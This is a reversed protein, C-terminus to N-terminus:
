GRLNIVTSGRGPPPDDLGEEELPAFLFSRGGRRGDEGDNGDHEREKKKGRADEKGDM